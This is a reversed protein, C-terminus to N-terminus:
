LAESLLPCDEPCYGVSHGKKIRRFEDIFVHDGGDETTEWHPEELKEVTFDPYRFYNSGPKQCAFWHVIHNRGHIELIEQTGCHSCLKLSHSM